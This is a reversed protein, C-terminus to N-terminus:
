NNSCRNSERKPILRRLVQQNASELFRSFCFSSSLGSLSQAKPLM